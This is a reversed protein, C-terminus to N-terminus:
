CIREAYQNDSALCVGIVEDYHKQQGPIYRGFKVIINTYMMRLIDIKDQIEDKTYGTYIVIDDDSRKRFLSIFEDLEDFSDFPEMGQMCVAHTMPNDLYQQIIIEAGVDFTYHFALKGNQCVPEGYEKNCKMSCYPFELTMCTVKYNVIDEFIVGKLIM